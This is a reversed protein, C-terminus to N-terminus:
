FFNKFFATGKLTVTGMPLDELKTTKQGSSVQLLCDQKSKKKVMNVSCGHQKFSPELIAPFFISSFLINKRTWLYQMLCNCRIQLFCIMIQLFSKSKRKNIKWYCGWLRLCLILIYKFCGKSVLYNNPKCSDTPQTSFHYCSFKLFM